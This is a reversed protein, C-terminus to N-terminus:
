LYGTSAGSRRVCICYSLILARQQNSLERARLLRKAAEFDLLSGAPAGVKGMFERAGELNLDDWAAQLLSNVQKPSTDTLNIIDGTHTELQFPTRFAWGLKRLALHAAGLPGRVEAWSRPLHTITKSAEGGLWNLPWMVRVEPDTSAKWVVSSWMGITSTAQRWTPDGLLCLSIYKHRSQSPSGCLQLYLHQAAQVEKYTM